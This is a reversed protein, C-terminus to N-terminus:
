AAHSWGAGFTEDELEECVICGVLKIFNLCVGIHVKGEDVGGGGVPCADGASGGDRAVLGQDFLQPRWLYSGVKSIKSVTHMFAVLMVRAHGDDADGRGLNTVPDGVTSSYSTSILVCLTSDCSFHCSRTLKPSDRRILKLKHETQVLGM